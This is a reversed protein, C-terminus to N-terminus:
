SNRALIVMFVVVVLTKLTIIGSGNVNILVYAEAYSWLKIHNDKGAVRFAKKSKLTTIINIGVEKKLITTMSKFKKGTYGLIFSRNFIVKPYVLCSLTTKLRTDVTIPKSNSRRM